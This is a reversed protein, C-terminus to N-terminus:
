YTKLHISTISYATIIYSAVPLGPLNKHKPTLIKLVEGHKAECKTKSVIATYDDFLKIVKKKAKYFIKLNNITSKQEKPKHEQKGTKKKM